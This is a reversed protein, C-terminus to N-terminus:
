IKLKKLINKLEKITYTIDADSINDSFSFRLSGLTEKKSLGLSRLTKSEKKSKTSCASGTSCFVGRESLFVVASDGEIGPFSVNVINNNSGNIKGGIRELEETLKIRIKEIRKKNQKSSIRLAEAFGVIGPINETGSRLGHEQGGGDILPHLKVGRRVYLFGVGKPGGIKHASASLLSLNMKNVDIKIKGFSQVADTHFPVNHKKCLKGIKELDQAIGLENNVHIISVLKAKKIKNKLESFNIKGSKDVPIEIPNNTSDLSPHEIASIVSNSFNKMVLNNSETAGSTFIIESPKANIEKAIKERAKNMEKAANEGLSHLSSPNGYEELFFKNMKKVVAPYVPTTAANDFYIKKM